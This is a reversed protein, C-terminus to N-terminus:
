IFWNLTLTSKGLLLLKSADRLYRLDRKVWNALLSAFRLALHPGNAVTLKSVAKRLKLITVKILKDRM